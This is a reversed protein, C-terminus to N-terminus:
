PRNRPNSRQEGLPHLLNSHNNHSRAVLPIISAQRYVVKAKNIRSRALPQGEEELDPALAGEESDLVEVLDVARLTEAESVAAENRHYWSM